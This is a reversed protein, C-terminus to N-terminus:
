LIVVTLLGWAALSGLWLGYLSLRAHSAVEILAGSALIFGVGTLVWAPILILSRPDGFVAVVVAWGLVGVFCSAVILAWGRVSTM